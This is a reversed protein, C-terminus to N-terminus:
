LHRGVCRQQTSAFSACERVCGNSQAHKSIVDGLDRFRVGPKCMAVAKALCDHSTKILKKSEGDVEGVTFTQVCLCLCFRQELSAQISQSESAPAPWQSTLNCALTSIFSNHKQRHSLPACACSCLCYQQVQDRKKHVKGQCGYMQQTKKFM